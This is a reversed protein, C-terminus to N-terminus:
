RRSVPVVHLRTMADIERGSRFQTRVLSVGTAAMMFGLVIPICGVVISTTEDPRWWGRLMIIVVGFAVMALSLAFGLYSMATDVWTWPQPEPPDYNSSTPGPQAQAEVDGGDDM